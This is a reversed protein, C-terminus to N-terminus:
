SMDGINIGLKKAQAKNIKIETKDPFAVPIDRPSKGALIELIIQGTQRGLAYQNPGLAALAGHDVMDTDSCFVPIKSETGIKVIADFASLATNDNNIFIAEVKTVLFRAAEAVDATKNATAFVLEIGKKTAAQKMQEVLAVSNAEGPNYIIGLKSLKPLIKKFLDFQPATDVHDSVGTVLGEPRNLNNVLKSGKPDTVSVFVIPITRRQDASILAQTSTTGIGVMIDSANGVFQQAIQTALINNGQASQFDIQIDANKLEDIIGQRAADLAPHEAIQMISVHKEPKAQLPGASFSVNMSLIAIIGILVSKILNIM